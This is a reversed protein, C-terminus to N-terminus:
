PISDIITHVNSTLSYDVRNKIIVHVSCVFVAKPKLFNQTELLEVDNSSAHLKLCQVEVPGNIRRLCEASNPMMCSM